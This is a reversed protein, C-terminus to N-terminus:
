VHTTYAITPLVACSHTDCKSGVGRRQMVDMEIHRGRMRWASACLDSRVSQCCSDHRPTALRTLAGCSGVAALSSSHCTRALGCMSIRSLHRPSFIAASLRNRWRKKNEDTLTAFPETCFFHPIITFFLTSYSVSFSRSSVM